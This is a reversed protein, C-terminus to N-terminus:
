HSSGIRLSREKPADHLVAVVASKTLALITSLEALAGARDPDKPVAVYTRMSKCNSVLATAGISGGTGEIIHLASRADRINDKAAAMRLDAVATELEAFAASIYQDLFKHDGKSIRRLSHIQDVDVLQLAAAAIPRAEIEIESVQVNGVNTRTVIVREIAALLAQATVPKTLFDDAGADLSEQKANATADASLIIIPLPTSGVSSARFLKVVDPGSMDPMNLDLLALDIAGLAMVDFAQDGREAVTVRHGADMLIRAILIRNSANDDALLLSLSRTAPTGGFRSAPAAMSPPVELRHILPTLYDRLIGPSPHQTTLGAAGKDVLTRQQTSTIAQTAFLLWPCANEDQHHLATEVLDIADTAPMVLLAALYKQADFILEREKTGSAITAELGLETLSKVIMNMEISPAGIVLVRRWSGWEIDQGTINPPPLSIEVRFISGQGPTSLVSIQGNMLETLDRAISTGLGTGGFKRKASSDVQVFRDFLREQQDASIGIGSDIVEFRVKKEGQNTVRLSVGGSSTFKFANNLLNGLIHSLHAQDGAVNFPVDPEVQIGWELGKLESQPRVSVALQQLFFWLNFPKNEAREAGAELKSMQLVADVSTKLTRVANGLMGILEKEDAAMKRGCLLDYVAFVGTLPTRLEHSVNAVFRSKANSLQEAAEKQGTLRILLVLVYLPVIAGALFLGAGVVRHQEWFPVFVLQLGFGLISLWYAALLFRPGFRFGNGITVWLYVGIMAVGGEGAGAMGISLATNDAVIGLYRLPVVSVNNRRLRWIMYAAVIIDGVSASLGMWLGTSIRGESLILYWVYGFALSCIGIRLWAQEVDPDRARTQYVGLVRRMRTAFETM